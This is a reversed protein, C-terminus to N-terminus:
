SRHTLRGFLGGSRASTSEARKGSLRHAFRKFSASLENHNDLAIPRGKNLAQLAVRYDSPFIHSLQAGVAKEVDEHGIEAHRDSRSLILTVKDRGYRERLMTTLRSASKVTALEQNAVVYIASLEDLVDLVAGDSQPLDIVTEKYIGSAFSILRQLREREFVGPLPREPSSLLDTHSATQVVLTRFFTEDLRHMNNLVDMVSFRPEVGMFVAADGGTQHLDMLLVRAPKSASGLATAVNVAVTTTGVGGKAGVFGFVRGVETPMRKDTVREIAKRVDDAVIPEPLVESVGARMAELLLTPDLVSAVIVIGIHPHHRKLAAVAPFLGKERVDVIVVDTPKLTVSEITGRELHLGLARLADELQRDHSAVLTAHIV